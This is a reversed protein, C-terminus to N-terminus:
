NKGVQFITITKDDSGVALNKGDPSFRVSLVRPEPTWTWPRDHSPVEPMTHTAIEKMDNVSWLRVTNDSSGTALIKGDPSFDLTVVAILPIHRQFARIEEGTKVNWVRLSYDSSGSALLKGDPSFAIPYVWNNHGTLTRIEEGTEVNWLKITNDHDGTALIKGDSSFAL